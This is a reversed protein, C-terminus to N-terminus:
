CKWDMGAKRLSLDWSLAWKPLFGVRALALAPELLIGASAAAQWGRNICLTNAKTAKPVAFLQM